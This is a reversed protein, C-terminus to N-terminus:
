APTLILYAVAQPAVLATYSGKHVGVVKGGQWVDTISFSADASTANLMSQYDVTINASAAGDRNLLAVAWKTGPSLKGAWVERDGTTAIDLCWDGGRPISAPHGGSKNDNRIGVRDSHMLTFAGALETHTRPQQIWSSATTTTTSLRGDLDDTADDDDYESPIAAHLYRTSAVPGSAGHKNEVTLHRGTLTQLTTLTSSQGQFSPVAVLATAASSACPLARWSGVDETGEVDSVCWENGDADITMLVTKQQQKKWSWVQTAKAHDCPAAVAAAPSSFGFSPSRLDSFGAGSSSWVRQAQEGLADQSIALADKNVLIALTVPDIKRVDNGLLLPAKMITWMTLHVQCRALAAADAGCQFGNGGGGGGGPKSVEVKLCLTKPAAALTSSCLNKSVLTFEENAGSSGSKCKAMTLAPGYGHLLALCSKSKAPGTQTYLNGTSPDLVWNQNADPPTTTTGTRGSCEKLEITSGATLCLQMTQNYFAIMRGESDHSWNGSTYNAYAGPYMIVSLTDATATSLSSSSSGGNGVEIM